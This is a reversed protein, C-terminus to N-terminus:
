YYDKGLRCIWRPLRGEKQPSIWTRLPSTGLTFPPTWMADTVTSLASYDTAHGAPAAGAPDATEVM